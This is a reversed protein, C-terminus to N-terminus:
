GHLAAKMARTRDAICRQALETPGGLVDFAHAGGPYVHLEVPVGAASLRAAYALDEAFFLDIDGVYMYVPPLNSLDETRGPAAYLPTNDTGPEQGLYARWGEKNSYRSWVYTDEITDSAQTLNRDDIMPYILLQLILPVEGRDRTIQALGAALGGGASQGGIAIRAPDIGLEDASNYTWKLGVYCDELPIPFPNEPALRYDVSVVVCNWDLVYQSCQADDYEAKNMVYGGGHIWYVVPLTENKDIPQYVRLPVNFSGDAYPAEHVTIEVGEIPPAGEAMAALVGAVTERTQPIDTLDVVFGIDTLTDLIPALEADLRESLKPM